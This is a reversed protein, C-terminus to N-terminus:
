IFVENIDRFRAIVANKDCFDIIVRKDIAKSSKRPEDIAGCTIGGQPCGIYKSWASYVLGVKYQWDFLGGQMSNALVPIDSAESEDPGAELLLVRWGTCFQTQFIFCELWCEWISINSVTWWVDMSKVVYCEDVQCLGSNLIRGNWVM